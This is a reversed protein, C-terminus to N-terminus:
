KYPMGKGNYYPIPQPVFGPPLTNAANQLPRSVQKQAQPYTAPTVHPQPQQQPQQFTQNQVPYHYNGPQTYQQLYQSQQSQVASPSYVPSHQQTYPQGQQPALQQSPYTPQMQYSHQAVSAQYSPQHQGIQGTMQGHYGLAPNFQQPSNTNWPQTYQQQGNSFQQMPPQSPGVAQVPRSRDTPTPRPQSSAQKPKKPAKPKPQLKVAEEPWVIAGHKCLARTGDGFAIEVAAQEPRHGLITVSYIGTTARIQIQTGVPTTAVRESLELKRKEILAQM